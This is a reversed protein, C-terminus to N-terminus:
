LWILYTLDLSYNEIDLLLNNENLKKFTITYIVDQASTPLLSIYNM